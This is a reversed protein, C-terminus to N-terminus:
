YGIRVIGAEKCVQALMYTTHSTIESPKCVVTCGAALAPAIKFTLLYLPLNWPSILGAVGVPSRCTYNIAGVDLQTSRLLLANAIKRAMKNWLKTNLNHLLPFHHRAFAICYAWTNIVHLIGSAFFRFNLCVRNMDVVKALWVPKGQDRSEAAAFEDIRSEVIDAIKMM